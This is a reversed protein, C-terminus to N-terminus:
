SRHGGVGALKKHPKITYNWKPCVKGPLLRLNEMMENSIKKGAKYEKKDLRAKIKLGKCNTTGEILKVVTEFTVLPKGKRNMSIFSFMRHEIKNWKSTGPPYHCVSIMLGTEDSFKQLYYKWGRNRSGNSGGGDGCILLKKAGSYQTKGFKLWWQRISAVAFEATDKSSGVNVMGENRQIDFTGYPVAKGEATSPFDYVNVESPLEKKEWKKGTNKFNGVLEKKKADVSIVPAQTALFKAVTRNIHQFQEDRDPHRSGPEITKQNARLSFDLKHLLRCVTMPSVSHGQRTLEKALTRTSKVTWKLVCMPNGATNEELIKELDRVLQSPTSDPKEQKRGGGPLRIRGYPDLDTRCQLEEAGRRITNPSLGTVAQIAKFGGRGLELAKQGSYWRKQSENLSRFVKLWSEFDALFNAVKEM